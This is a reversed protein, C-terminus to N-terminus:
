AQPLLLTFSSGEGQGRSAVELAGGMGTVWQHVRALTGRGQAEGQTSRSTLWAYRVFLNRLDEETLGVGQDMVRLEIMDERRGTFLKVVSGAPSFKSANSLLASLTEVVYHRDGLVQLRDDLHQELRQEKRTFRHEMLGVAERVLETFPLPTSTFHQVGREVQMDDLLREVERLAKFFQQEGFEALEGEGAPAQEGLQKMVEHMGALRNRLDHAFRHLREAQEPLAKPLEAM